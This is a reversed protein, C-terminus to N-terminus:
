SIRNKIFMITLTADIIDEDIDLVTAYLELLTKEDENIDGDALAFDVLNVFVAEREDQLLEESVATACEELTHKDAFKEANKLDPCKDLSKGSKSINDLLVIKNEDIDSGDAFYIMTFCALILAKEPTDIKAEKGLGFFAM